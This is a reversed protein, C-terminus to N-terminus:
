QKMIFYMRATCMICLMNANSMSTTVSVQDMIIISTQVQPFEM